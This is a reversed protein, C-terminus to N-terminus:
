PATPSSRETKQGNGAVNVQVTVTIWSKGIRVSQQTTQEPEIIRTEGTQTDLIVVRKGAALMQFRSSANSAARKGVSKEATEQRRKKKQKKPSRATETSSAASVPADNALVSASERVAMRDLGLLLCCFMLLSLLRM